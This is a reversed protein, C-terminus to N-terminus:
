KSITFYLVSVQPQVSLTNKFATGCLKTAQKTQVRVQQHIPEEGNDGDCNNQGDMPTDEEAEKGNGDAHKDQSPCVKISNGAHDTCITGSVM